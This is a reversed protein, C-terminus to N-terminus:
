VLNTEEMRLYLVAQRYDIVAARSSMLDGGIAGDIRNAGHAELSKNVHSLDLVGVEIGFVQFSQFELSDIVGYAVAHESTGVGGAQIESETISLNLKEISDRSIISRSAGTDVLLRVPIGNVRAQIEFHGVSNKEMQIGIYGQASLFESLKIESM